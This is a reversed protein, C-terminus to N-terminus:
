PHVKIRPKPRAKRVMLDNIFTLVEAREAATRGTLDVWMIDLGKKDLHAEISKTFKKVDFPAAKPVPGVADYTHGTKPDVFDGTKHQGHVKPDYRELARDLSTEIHEGADAEHRVTRKSETDYALYKRHAANLEEELKIADEMAREFKAQDNAAEAVKLRETIDEYRARMAPDKLERPYRYEFFSCPSKCVVLRGGGVAKMEGGGRLARRAKVGRLAEDVERAAREGQLVEREVAGELAAGGRGRAKVADDAIREAQSGLGQERAVRTLAAATLDEGAAGAKRAIMATRAAPALARFAALAAGLDLGAGVVDLALWFLSPQDQSIARAKAFDTDSAAAALAYEQYHQVVSYTSLAASGVAAGATVLSVGGTPIAAVLALSLALAGVALNRWFEDDEIEKIRDQLLRHQFSDPAVQLVGMTRSMVGPLKWVKLKGSPLGDERV